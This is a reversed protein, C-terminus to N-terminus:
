HGQRPVRPGLEVELLKRIKSTTKKATNQLTEFELLKKESILLNQVTLFRNLLYTVAGTWQKQM